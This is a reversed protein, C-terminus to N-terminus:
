MLGSSISANRFSTRMAEPLYRLLDTAILAQEGFERAGLEGALGHLYVGAAVAKRIAEPDEGKQQAIMGAILGTLIDGTGGTAMAPTGTPNVLVEGNQAAVLTRHGKLVLQVEVSAAFSRAAAIRDAQVEDTEKGSLRGMEGPHPTLVRPYGSGVWESGALANLGDADIVLIKPTERYLKRVVKVTEPDQGLGPGVALVSKNQALPRLYEFAHEALGGSETEPLPETMLEPAQAAIAGIASEASAVTVLGAGARLAALGTMAAAGSKTRSGAVVLVHGYTGKNADKARPALLSAFFDPTILRLNLSPDDDIMQPPTGIAGLRIEGMLDCAPSLMQGLKYATFTVTYDARVYEGLLSGSDTPLGSPVDVAVVKALPFERNIVRIAELPIGSAPGNVGTGLVADILLDAFRAEAPITELPGPIINPCGSAQLMKYNAAADKNLDGPPTTLLVHISKPRFRTWLQRAIALGDGGNNGRGCVIAIRREPVPSFKEILLDVVRAAANEMLILGPIGSEITRRDIENMQSSTLIKSPIPM